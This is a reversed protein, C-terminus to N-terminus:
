NNSNKFTTMLPAFAKSLQTSLLTFQQAFSQISAIAQTLDIAPADKDTNSQHATSKNTKHSTINAYSTHTNTPQQNEKKYKDPNKICGSYNAPHSGGCNCCTAPEDRPKTCTTTHHDGACQLCKPPARCNSQGHGYQQCNHCQNTKSKNKLSEVRISLGMVKSINFIENENKPILLLILPIPKREKNMKMRYVEKPHFGMTTLEEKVEETSIDTPIGRLVVHLHKEEPLQYTHFPLNNQELYKIIKRYDDSTSPNIKIGGDSQKAKDFNITNEKM